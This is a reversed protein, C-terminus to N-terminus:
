SRGGKRRSNFSDFWEATAVIVCMGIMALCLLGFGIIATALDTTAIM